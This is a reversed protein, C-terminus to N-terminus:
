VQISKILFDESKFGTAERQYGVAETSQAISEQVQPQVQLNAMEGIRDFLKIQLIINLLNYSRVDEFNFSKASKISPIVKLTTSNSLKNEFEIQVQKTNECLVNISRPTKLERKENIFLNPEFDNLIFNVEKDSTLLARTPFSVPRQSQLAPKM